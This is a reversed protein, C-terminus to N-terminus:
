PNPASRPPDFISRPTASVEGTFGDPGGVGIARVTTANLRAVFDLVDAFRRRATMTLQTAFAGVPHEPRQQVQLGIRKALRVFEATHHLNQAGSTDKIHRSHAYLHVVEHMLLALLSKAYVEPDPDFLGPHRVHLTIKDFAGENTRWADNAFTGLSGALRTGDVVVVAREAYVEDIGPLDVSARRTVIIGVDRLIQATLRAKERTVDDTPPTLLSTM